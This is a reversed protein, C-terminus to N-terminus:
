RRLGVILQGSVANSANNVGFGATVALWLRSSPAIAIAPGVATRTLGASHGGWTEAGVHLKPM